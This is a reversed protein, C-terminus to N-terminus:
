PHRPIKNTFLYLAISSFQTIWYGFCIDRCVYQVQTKKPWCSFYAFWIHLQRTPLQISSFHCELCFLIYLCAFMHTPSVCTFIFFLYFLLNFIFNMRWFEHQWWIKANKNGMVSNWSWKTTWKNVMRSYNITMRCFCLKIKGVDTAVLLSLRQEFVNVEWVCRGDGDLAFLRILVDAIFKLEACAGRCKVFLAMPELSYKNENQTTSLGFCRCSCFWGDRNVAFLRILFNLTFESTRM